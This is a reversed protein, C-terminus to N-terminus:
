DTAKMKLQHHRSCIFLKSVDVTYIYLINKLRIVVANGTSHLMKRKNSLSIMYCLYLRIYNVISSKSSILDADVCKIFISCYKEMSCTTDISSKSLISLMMWMSLSIIDCYM